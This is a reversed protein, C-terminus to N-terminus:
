STLSDRAQVTTNGGSKVAETVADYAAGFFESVSMYSGESLEATGASIVVDSSKARLENITSVASAGTVTSLIVFEDDSWRGLSIDKSDTREALFKKMMRAFKRVIGSAAAYGLAESM